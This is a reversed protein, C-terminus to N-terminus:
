PADNVPIDSTFPDLHEDPNTDKDIGEVNDSPSFRNTFYQDNM